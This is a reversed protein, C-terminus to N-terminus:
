ITRAIDVLDSFLGYATQEVGPKLTFVGMDGMLDTHLVLLNSTGRCAALIDDKDLVEARVRLKVGEATKRARSLLTVTKGKNELELLKEHTMRAIGKREIQQPTIDAKMLINALAAAKCASDWGDM